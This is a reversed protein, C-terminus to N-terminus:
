RGSQGALFRVARDHGRHAARLIRGHPAGLRLARLWDAIRRPLSRPAVPLGWYHDLVVASYHIGEALRAHYDVTFRGPAILHTLRLASVLGVGLGVACACAALDNDGGSLLQDGTRDLQLGRRGDRHLALYHQAAARRICLGAGCPMTEPLRPLNSWVDEDFERVALNGWYRRSWDPPENEFGGRCQGSWAGLWPRDRAIDRAVALFDDDLVNDDDVFVLLAGRAEDIGRLRAPTLGLRDERLIRAQPHWALDLRSALPDTSANDIVVLEWLGTALTQSRLAALTAALSAERPNHTCVIVSLEPTM